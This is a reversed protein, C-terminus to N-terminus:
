AHIPIRKAGGTVGKPKPVEVTLVGKKFTADAEMKSPDVEWPLPIERHFAGFRREKRVFNDGKEEKMESKEGKLVLSNRNLEVEVDKESLGPLEVMVKLGKDNEVVDMTPMFLVKEGEFVGPEMEMQRSFSELLRDMEDRLSTLPAFPRFPALERTRM